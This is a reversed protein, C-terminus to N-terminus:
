QYRRKQAIGRLVEQVEAMSVTGVKGALTACAEIEHDPCFLQIAQAIQENTALDFHVMRDIRGPRILAPDLVTHNNTTAILILNERALVGDMVNLLTGLNFFQKEKNQERKPTVTDIDEILLMVPKGTDITFIAQELAQDTTVTGLNLVYLPMGLHSALAVAASSKGTGPPGHFLYGRRYPIGMKRHWAEDNLFHSMDDVLGRASDPLFVSTLQRKERPEMEWGGGWSGRIHHVILKHSLDEKAAAEVEKLFKQVVTRDRGFFRITIKERKVLSSMDVGGTGGGNASNEDEWSLWLPKRNYFFFHWGHAPACVVNGDHYRVGIRRTRKSYPHNHLWLMIWFFPKEDNRINIVVTFVRLFLDWLRGPLRRLSAIVGAIAGLVLGGSLFQNELAPKMQEYLGTVFTVVDVGM